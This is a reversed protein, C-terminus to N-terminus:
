AARVKDLFIKVQDTLGTAQQSLEESATNVQQAAAGTENAGETVKSINSNVDQTGRSAEQVNRAIEETAAGQEEVAASIASAIENIQGVTGNVGEIVTVASNTAQQIGTVQAAIEETAKGTQTALNKVESAVVAFGKGAEGARAAEITANLALLNTQSAIDNILNVIEGIRQSAEVLGRVETTAKETEGLASTTIASSEQVQRAIEQVSSSMEEAASAVTEVNVTAQESAAAVATSQESTAEAIQSMSQATGQMETAASSVVGLAQNVQNDFNTILDNVTAARQERLKQAEAQEAELRVREIANEKFVEVAKAMAGLEDGREGGIVEVDNNGGALAHMTDTLRAIPGSIGRSVLYGFLGILLLAGGAILVMMNRMSVIPAMAESADKEALLAWKAGNFEFPVYASLIEVGRYDITRQVGSKGQLALKVTESDVKQKLITSEKSFRSNSRMLLDEGVIYSEGTEGLGATIGMTANINDIPMQFVLVGIKKSDKGFVPTSIFSAPADNSPAYPKFDFFSLTGPAGAATGARFANGLDTDKWQGTNLNTAYDLEKFVTYILNGDLDFLFIDYYGREELFTRLWPHYITHVRTYDSSDNAAGDLKHKEGLPHPNDEIYLKQLTKAKDGDITAWAAGFDAIATIVTDSQSLTRMDQEISSLYDKFAAKRGEVVAILGEDISQEQSNSAQFYNSVGMVIALILASGVIIAPLKIKIPINSFTNLM